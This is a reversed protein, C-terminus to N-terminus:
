AAAEGWKALLIAYLVAVNVAVSGVTSTPAFAHPYLATCALSTAASIVAVQRWWPQGMLLGAAAAAFGVTPVLFLLGAGLRAGGEGVIGSLVWSHSSMGEFKAIGWAPMWGLVHGIGHAGIVGTVLLRVMNADM